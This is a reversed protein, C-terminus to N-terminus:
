ILTPTYLLLCGANILMKSRQCGAAAKAAEKEASAITVEPQEVMEYSASPKDRGEGKLRRISYKPIEFYPLRRGLIVGQGDNNVREESICWITLM